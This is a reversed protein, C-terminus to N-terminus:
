RSAFSVEVRRAIARKEDASYAAANLLVPPATEGMGVIQIDVTVGAAILHDRVTAARRLSLAQNASEAGVDDTHGILTLATLDPQAKLFAALAHTEQTGSANLVHKGFEFRVPLYVRDLTTAAATVINYDAVAVPTDDRDVDPVAVASRAILGKRVARMVGSSSGDSRMASQASGALMMSQQALAMLRPVVPELAPTQHTLEPSGLTDLAQNYLMAAQAHDGQQAVLGGRVALVEWHLAPASDLLTEAAAIDGANIAAGARRAAVSSVQRLANTQLAQGCGADGLAKADGVLTPVPVTAFGSELKTLASQCDAAAYTTSLVTFVVGTAYFTKVRM